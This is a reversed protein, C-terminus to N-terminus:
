SKTISIEFIINSPSKHDMCTFEIKQGRKPPKVYRIIFEGRRLYTRSDSSVPVPLRLMALKECQHAKTQTRTYISHIGRQPRPSYPILGPPTHVPTIAIVVEWELELLPSTQPGATVCCPVSLYFKDRLSSPHLPSHLRLCIQASIFLIEHATATNLPLAMCPSIYM